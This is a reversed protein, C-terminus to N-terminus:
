NCCKFYFNLLTQCILKRGLRYFILNSFTNEYILQKYSIIMMEKKTRTWYTSVRSKFDVLFQQLRMDVRFCVSAMTTSQYHVRYRSLIFEDRRSVIFSLKVVTPCLCNIAGQGIISSGTFQRQNSLLLDVIKYHIVSDHKTIPVGKSQQQLLANRENLKKQKKKKKDM